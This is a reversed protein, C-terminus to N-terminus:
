LAQLLPINIYLNKLEGVIDFNPYVILKEIMLRELFPPSPTTDKDPDKSEVTSGGQKIEKTIVV